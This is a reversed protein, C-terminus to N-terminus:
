RRGFFRATSFATAALLAASILLSARMGAEFGDSLLAGFTAVSLAIAVQRAANLVGAAVGAREAPVEEMMAATLAPLALGAGVAIPLLMLATLVPPTRPGVFLLLLMGACSTLQGTLMPVRPGYRNSVRGSVLNMALLLGTMPLFMLGTALPSQGRVQQFYLGFVFLMGYFSVSIVSGSAVAVAVTRERFLGLPVVPQPHRSEVRLFVGLAAVAVGLAWWAPAGSEIVAFAVGALALVASIQGAPDLRAPRPGSRPARIMLGWTLVGLPLNIFFVARWDLSATLAGGVVPGLAAATTGGAAWMGVARARRAPDTYAQRVLSLTTPLVVAAAMGQVTRFGILTPLNPALGCAASALTFMAIGLLYARTAGIRDSFAGTSLLLAAFAVTYADVVWQLGSMGGGLEAGMTPLAVNMVTADLTILGFGLMSAALARGPAPLGPAPSEQTRLPSRAGSRATNPSSM